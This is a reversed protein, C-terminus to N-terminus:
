FDALLSFIPRSISVRLEFVFRERSESGTGIEEINRLSQRDQTLALIAHLHSPFGTHIPLPLLTFLRGNFTSPLGIPFALAVHSFLKDDALKSGVNYGLQRSMIQSTEETSRVAHCVRWVQSVTTARHLKDTSTMNIACKFTEERAGTNRSFTRKEVISLDPIEASGIFHERGDPSIVKLSISRIHKLFLMVVSLEKQVFDHFLMEIVSQDVSTAKITSTLAQAPTRLPLRVVTGPFFGESNPSLSNSFAALQDPYANGQTIVDIRVGGEQGASFREHPDFIVLKRGSLFHPNDTIQFM